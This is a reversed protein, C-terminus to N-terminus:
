RFRFFLEVLNIEEKLSLKNSNMKLIPINIKKEIDEIIEKIFKGEQKELGAMGTRTIGKYPTTMFIIGDIQKVFDLDDFLKLLNDANPFLKIHSMVSILSRNLFLVDTKNKFKVAYNMQAKASLIYKTLIEDREAVNMLLIKKINLDADDLIKRAEESLVENNKKNQSPSGRLSAYGKTKLGSLLYDKGSGTPGEVIYLKGTM